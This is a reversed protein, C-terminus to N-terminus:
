QQLGHLTLPNSHSLEVFHLHEDLNWRCSIGLNLHIMDGVALNNMYPYGLVLAAHQPNCLNKRRLHHDLSLEPIKSGMTMLKNM